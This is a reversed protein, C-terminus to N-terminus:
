AKLNLYKAVSQVDKDGTPLPLRRSFHRSPPCPPASAVGPLGAERCAAGHRLFGAASATSVGATRAQAPGEGRGIEGEQMGEGRGSFNLVVRTGDPLTPCLKDLYALAHATELAPIIGELRSCLQFADLTEADAGAAAAHPRDTLQAPSAPLWARHTPLHMCAWM